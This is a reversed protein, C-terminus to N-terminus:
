EVIRIHGSFYEYEGPTLRGRNLRVCQLVRGSFGEDSNIVRLRYPSSMDTELIVTPLGEGSAAIKGPPDCETRCDWDGSFDRNFKEPFKGKEAPHEWRDYRESLMINTQERDVEVSEHVSMKLSFEFGNGKKRITWFLTIPFYRCKSVATLSDDTKELRSWDAEYSGDFRGQSRVSTYIGLSKSLDAGEYSLHFGNGRFHITTGGNALFQKKELPELWQKAPTERLVVNGRFFVRDGPELPRARDALDFNQVRLVRGFMEYQTNFVEVIKERVSEPSPGGMELEVVSAKRDPSSSALGIRENRLKRIALRNWVKEFPPIPSLRDTENDTWWSDYDAHFIGNLVAKQLVITETTRLIFELSLVGESLVLRWIWIAPISHYRGHIECSSETSKEIKWDAHYSFQALDQVELESYIGLSTTVEEGKHFLSIRGNNFIASSEGSQLVTMGQREGATRMYFGIVRGPAGSNVIRGKHILNVRSCIQSIANMDHSILVLTKGEDRFSRIKEYCKRQFSEDGVALVEDILLIDAPLHAAISFGLRLVMGSSYTRLPSDIFDELESFRVIEEMKEDVLRASLGMLPGNLWINERGTLDFHFGAGLELLAAVNGQVTVSGRDPVLIGAMLKLLTSKGAGNSGIFGVAEGASIEFSLGQVASFRTRYHRRHPLLYHLVHHFSTPKDTQLTYEVWVNDFRITGSM